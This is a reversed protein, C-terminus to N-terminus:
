KSVESVATESPNGPEYTENTIYIFNRSHNEKPKPKKAELRNFINLEEQRAKEIRKRKAEDYNRFDIWCRTDEKKLTPIKGQYVFYSSPRHNRGDEIVHGMKFSTGPGGHYFDQDWHFRDKWLGPTAKYMWAEQINFGERNNLPSPEGSVPLRIPVSIRNFSVGNQHQMDLKLLQEKTVLYLMGRVPYKPVEKVSLTLPFAENYTRYNWLTTREDTFGFRMRPLDTIIKGFSFFPHYQSQELKYEDPTFEPPVYKNDKTFPWM